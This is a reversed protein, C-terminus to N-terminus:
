SPADPTLFQAKEGDRRKVLEPPEDWLLFDLAADAYRPPSCNLMRVVSSGTFGNIGINFALSVLADFQNQTLPAKVIRNVAAEFQALDAALIADAEEMTITTAPRALYGGTHGVGITWIGRTDQYADLRVGERNRIAVIGAPSTKLLATGEL